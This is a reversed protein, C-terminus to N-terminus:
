RFHTGAASHGCRNARVRHGHGVAGASDAATQLGDHIQSFSVYINDLYTASAKESAATRVEALVRNTIQSTLINTGEDQVLLEAKVPTDGSASALAASFNAPITLSSQYSHDDLGQKAKDASMVQWDFSDSKSLQALLETGASISQGNATVPQDLNVVAVPLKDLRSYPDWFAWLYLGGYLLPVLAVVCLAARIKRMRLVRWLEVLGLRVSRM